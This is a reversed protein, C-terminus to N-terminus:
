ANEYLPNEVERNAPKFLPNEKVDNADFARNSYFDYGKKAGLSLIALFGVSGLLIGVIAGAGIGSPSL